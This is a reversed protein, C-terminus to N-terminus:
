NALALLLIMCGVFRREILDTVAAPIAALTRNPNAPAARLGAGALATTYQWYM